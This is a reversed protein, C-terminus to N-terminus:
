FYDAKNEGTSNVVSVCKPKRCKEKADMVTVIDEEDETCHTEDMNVQMQKMGQTNRGHKSRKKKQYSSLFINVQM